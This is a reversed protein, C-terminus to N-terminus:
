HVTEPPSWDEKSTEGGQPVKKALQKGAMLDKPDGPVQLESCRTKQKPKPEKQVPPFHKISGRLQHFEM